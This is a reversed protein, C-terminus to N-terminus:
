GACGIAFRACTGPTTSTVAWGGAIRDVLREGKPAPAPDGNRSRTIPGAIDAAANPSRQPFPVPM